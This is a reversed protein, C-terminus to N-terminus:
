HQAHELHAEAREALPDSGVERARPSPVITAATSGAGSITPRVERAKTGPRRRAASM